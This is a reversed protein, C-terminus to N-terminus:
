RPAPDAGLQAVNVYTKVNEASMTPSNRNPDAGPINAPPASSPRAFHADNAIMSYLPTVPYRQDIEQEHREPGSAEQHKPIRTTTPCKPSRGSAEPDVADENRLQLIHALVRGVKPDGDLYYGEAEGANEPGESKQPPEDALRARNRYDDLDRHRASATREVHIVKRSGRHIVTASGRTFCMALTAVSVGVVLVSM